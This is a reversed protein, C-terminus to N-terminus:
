ELLRVLDKLSQLTIKEDGADGLEPVVIDAALNDDDKTYYNTTVVCKIGAAKAAFLGVASDEIVVCETPTLKLTALALQYIEPDPKKKTVIDGALIAAFHRRREAGLLRDIILNVARENSTSCVALQIGESIAEDVLRAVGPRLPMDGAAIIAMFLDTKRRHMEKLFADQDFADAPWGVANFFSRLREKGGAIKLLEKYQAVSWEHALGMQRFARNFAVRHGDRETDVLVGDCDFIIAKLVGIEKKDGM